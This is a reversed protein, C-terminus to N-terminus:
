LKLTLLPAFSCIISCLDAEILANLVDKINKYAEPAEEYLLETNHCVVFSKLKTEFIQNKKYKQALRGKCLGRPWKRGAGHSLSFLSKETNEGPKVLYTPTGRSGPIVVPGRLASVAGKRHIHHGDVLELFNHPADFLPRPEATDSLFGLTKLAIARRNRKAWLLAKDHEAMYIGAGDDRADIGEPNLFKEYIKQGLDRSGSHVLLHLEEPNLDLSRFTEPDFIEDLVLIEAFHNGGGIDGLVRMPCVEEYPNDFPLAAISDVEAFRERTKDLKFKRAPIELGFLGMGCGIDNGILFPHIWDKSSLVAGVPTKGPHLDPLGVAKAIGPFHSVRELQILAPDEIWCKDNAILTYNKSL